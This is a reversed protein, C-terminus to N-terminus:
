CPFIGYYKSVFFLSGSEKKKKKKNGGKPKENQKHTQRYDTEKELDWNLQKTKKKKKCPIERKTNTQSRGQKLKPRPLYQQCSYSGSLATNEDAPTNPACPVIQGM